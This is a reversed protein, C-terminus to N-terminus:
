LRREYSLEDDSASERFYAHLSKEVMKRFGEWAAMVGSDACPGRQIIHFHEDTVLRAVMAVYQGGREEDRPTVFALQEFRDVPQEL